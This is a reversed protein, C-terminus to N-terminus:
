ASIDLNQGVAGPEILAVLEQAQAEQLDLVKRLVRTVAENQTTAQRAALLAISFDM